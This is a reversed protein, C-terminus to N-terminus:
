TCSSINVGTVAFALQQLYYLLLGRSNWLAAAYCMENVAIAGEHTSAIKYCKRSFALYSPLLTVSVGWGTLLTKAAEEAAVLEGFKITEQSVMSDRQADIRNKIVDGVLKADYKSARYASSRVM